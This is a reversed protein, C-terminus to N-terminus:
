LTAILYAWNALLLTLIAVLIWGPRSIRCRRGALAFGIWVLAGLALAFALAAGFPNWAFATALHGEALAAWSRTGGCLPCPIGFALRMGCPPWPVWGGAMLPALLFGGGVFVLLALPPVLLGWPSPEPPAPEKATASPRAMSM